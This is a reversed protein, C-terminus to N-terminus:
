KRHNYTNSSKTSPHLNSITDLIEKIGCALIQGTPTLKYTKYYRPFRGKKSLRLLKLCELKNLSRSTTTRNMGLDKVLQSHTIERHVLAEFLIQLYGKSTILYPWVEKKRTTIQLNKMVSNILGSLERGQNTAEYKIEGRFGKDKKIVFGMSELNKLASYAARQGINELSILDSIRLYGHDDLFLLVALNAKSKEFNRMTKFVGISPLVSVSQISDENENMTM